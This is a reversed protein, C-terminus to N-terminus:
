TSRPSRVGPHRHAFVAAVKLAAGVVRAFDGAKAHKIQRRLGGPTAGFVAGLILAVDDVGRKDLARQDARGTSASGSSGGSSM